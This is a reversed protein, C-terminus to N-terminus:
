RKAGQNIHKLTSECDDYSAGKGLPRSGEAGHLCIGGYRRAVICCDFDDPDIRAIQLGGDCDACWVLTYQTVERM